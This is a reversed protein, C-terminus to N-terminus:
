IDIKYGLGSHNAILQSYTKKRLSRVLTRLSEMSMMEEKWVGREIVDYSLLNNKNKLLLEFLLSEKKSLGVASGDPRHVTKNIPDYSFGEHLDNEFLILPLPALLKKAAIHLATLLENKKLPKILYRTTDLDIAELLLEKDSDNATIIIPALIDKYRLFRIFNMGEQKHLNLDILILDIKNHRFLENTSSITDTALVKLGNERMMATNKERCERDNELYLVTINRFPEM